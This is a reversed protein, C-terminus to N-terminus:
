KAAEIAFLSKETNIYLVGNAVTPTTRIPEDMEIMMMRTHHHLQCFLIYQGLM